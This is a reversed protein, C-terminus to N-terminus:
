EDKIKLGENCLRKKEYSLLELLDDTKSYISDLLNEDPEINDYFSDIVESWEDILEYILTGIEPDM